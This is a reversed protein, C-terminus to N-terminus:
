HLGQGGLLVIRQQDSKVLFDVAALPKTRSVLKAIENLADVIELDEVIPNVTARWEREAHDVSTQNVTGSIKLTRKRNLDLNALDKDAIAKNLDARAVRVAAQAATVAARAQERTRIDLVAPNSPLM